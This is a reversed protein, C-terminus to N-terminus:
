NKEQYCSRALRAFYWNNSLAQKQFLVEFLLVGFSFVRPGTILNGPKKEYTPDMYKLKYGYRHTLYLRHQKVKITSRFGHLKAEWNHDLLVNSSKVNNHITYLTKFVPGSTGTRGTLESILINM